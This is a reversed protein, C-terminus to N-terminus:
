FEGQGIRASFTWFSDETMQRSANRVIHDPMSVGKVNYYKMTGIEQISIEVLEKFFVYTTM